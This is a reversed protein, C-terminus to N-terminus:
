KLIWRVVVRWPRTHWRVVEGISGEPTVALQRWRGTWYHMSGIQHKDSYPFRWILDSVPACLGPGTTCRVAGSSLSTEKAEMHPNCLSRPGKHSCFPGRPAEYWYEFMELVCWCKLVRRDRGRTIQSLNSRWIQTTRTHDQVWARTKAERAHTSTNHKQTHKRERERVRFKSQSWRQSATLSELKHLNRV